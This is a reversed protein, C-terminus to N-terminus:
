VGINKLKQKLKTIIDNEDKIQQQIDNKAKLIDEESITTDNIALGGICGGIGGAIGGILAGAVAGYPGGIVFGFKGGLLAGSVIGSTGTISMIINERVTFQEKPNKKKLEVINLEHISIQLLTEKKQKILKLVIKINNENKDLGKRLLANDIEKSLENKYQQQAQANHKTNETGQALKASGRIYTDHPCFKEIDSYESETCLGNNLLEEARKLFISTENGNNIIGDNNSDVITALEKLNKNKIYSIEISM